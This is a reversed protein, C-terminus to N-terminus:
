TISWSSHIQSSYAVLSGPCRGWSVEIATSTTPSESAIKSIRKRDTVMSSSFGDPQVLQVSEGVDRVTLKTPHPHGRENTTETRFDVVTVCVAQNLCGEFFLGYVLANKQDGQTDDKQGRWGGRM